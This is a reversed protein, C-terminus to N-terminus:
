MATGSLTNLAGRLGALVMMVCAFVCADKVKGAMVAKEAELNAVEAELTSVREAELKAVKEAEAKVREAEAKAARAAKEAEAM